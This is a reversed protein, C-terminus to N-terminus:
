PEEGAARQRRRRNRRKQTRHSAPTSTEAMGELSQQHQLFPLIEEAQLPKALKVVAKTPAWGTCIQNHSSRFTGDADQYDRDATGEEGVPILPVWKGAAENRGWNFVKGCNKCVAM